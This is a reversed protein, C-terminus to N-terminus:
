IDKNKKVIKGKQVDFVYDCINLLNQNHSSIILTKKDKLKLLLKFINQENKKDLGNTAEDFFIVDPNKYLARAFVIRQAQGGSFSSGREGLNKNMGKSRIDKYIKLEKLITIVKSKNIEYIKKGFGVNRFISNDTIYINQPVYSLIKLWDKNLKRLDKDNILIQGSTPKLLGLMLNMFTSKGSGSEGKIGVIEGKKIKISVDKFIKKKTGMYSFNVNKFEIKKFTKILDTKNKIDNNEIIKAMNLESYIHNVSASLFKLTNLSNIIKVISPLFKYAAALYVGALPVITVLSKENILFYAMFSGLIFITIVEFLNRPISNLVVLHKTLDNVNKKNIYHESRTENESQYVRIEKVSALGQILYKTYKSSFHLRQKSWKKLFVNIPGFLYLSSVLCIILFIILSAIPDIYLLFCTIILLIISESILTILQQIAGKFNSMEYTLNRVYVSSHNKLYKEYSQNIYYGFLRDSFYNDFYDLTKQQWQPFFIILSNKIIFIILILFLFILIIDINDIKLYSGLSSLYYNNDIFTADTIIKLIQYIMGIGITELIASIILLISFILSKKKFKELSSWIKYILDM